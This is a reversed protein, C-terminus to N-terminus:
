VFPPRPYRARGGINAATQRCCLRRDPREEVTPGGPSSCLVRPVMAEAMQFTISRGHRVIRAGIKVLRERRKTMSWQAVEPPLALTRLFGCAVDCDSLGVGAAAVTAPRGGSLGAILLQPDSQSRDHPVIRRAV